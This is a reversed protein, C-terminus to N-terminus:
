RRFDECALRRVIRLFNVISRPDLPLGRSDRKLLLRLQAFALLYLQQRERFARALSGQSGCGTIVYFM